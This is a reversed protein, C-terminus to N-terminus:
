LILVLIYYTITVSTVFYTVCLINLVLPYNYLAQNISETSLLDLRM